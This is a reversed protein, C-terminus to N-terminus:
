HIDSDFDWKMATLVARVSEKREKHYQVKVTESFLFTPWDEIIAAHDPLSEITGSHVFFIPATLKNINELDAELQDKGLLYFYGDAEKKAEDLNSFFQILVGEPIEKDQFAKQNEGDAIVVIQMVIPKSAFNHKASSPIQIM